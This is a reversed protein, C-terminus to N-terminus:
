RCLEDNYKLELGSQGEGDVNCLGWCRPSCAYGYSVM